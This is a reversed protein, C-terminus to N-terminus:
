TDRELDEDTPSEIPNRVKTSAILVDWKLSEYRAKRFSQTVADACLTPYTRGDVKENIIIKM